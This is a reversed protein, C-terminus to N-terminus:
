RSFETEAHSMVTQQTFQLLIEDNWMGTKNDDVLVCRKVTPKNKLGSFLVHPKLFKGEGMSAFAAMFQKHSTGGKKVLM